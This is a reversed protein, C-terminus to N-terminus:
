SSTSTVRRRATAIVADDAWFTTQTKLVGIVEDFDILGRLAAEVLVGITGTVALGMRGAVARGKREDMLLLDAKIERALLLAATEGSGLVVGSGLSHTTASVPVIRLWSPPSSAWARLEPPASRHLCEAIVEPPCAVEEFLLPLWEIGGLAALYRLPSTDSVVIM